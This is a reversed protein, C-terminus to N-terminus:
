SFIDKRSRSGKKKSKRKVPNRKKVKSKKLKKQRIPKTLVFQSIRAKKRHVIGQGSQTLESGVRKLFNFGRAKAAKKFTTEGSAVDSITRIAAEKAHPLIYKRFLPIAYKALGGIVSGIGGGRQKIGVFVPINGGIQSKLTQFYLDNVFIYPAKM